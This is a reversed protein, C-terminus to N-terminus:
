GRGLVCVCECVIISCVSFCMTVGRGLVCVCECVIISYVSFYMTVGGGGCVCNNQVYQFM